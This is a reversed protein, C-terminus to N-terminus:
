KGKNFYQEREELFSMGWNFCDKCFHYPESDKDRQNCWMRDEFHIWTVAQEVEEGCKDCIYITKKIM